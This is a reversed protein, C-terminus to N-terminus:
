CKNYFSAYERVIVKNHKCYANMEVNNGKWRKAVIGRFENLM